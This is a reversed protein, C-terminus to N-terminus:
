LRRRSIEFRSYPSSKVVQHECLKSVESGILVEPTRFIAVGMGVMFYLMPHMKGFLAVTWGGLFIALITIIWGTMLYQLRYDEIIRKRKYVKVALTAFVAFNLIAVPIGNRMSILLWNNDVSSPMWFPRTWSEPRALGFFPSRIIDDQAFDWQLLRYYGTQPNFTMYSIIVRVVGRNSLMEIAFISLAVSILIIITRRPVRATIYEVLIAIIQFALLLIAASSLSLATSLICGLCLIIKIRASDVGYWLMSFMTASFLGFLIPHEFTSAARLLGMRIDGQQEYVIGTIASPIAHLYRFWLVAEPIALFGMTFIIVGIVLIFRKIILKNSLYQRAIIYPIATELFMQGSPEIGGVGLKIIYGLCLWMTMFIFIYDVIFKDESKFFSILMPFALITFIVKSATLFLPGLYISFEIPLTMAILFAVLPFPLKSSPHLGLRSTQYSDLGVIV